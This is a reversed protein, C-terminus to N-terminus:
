LDGPGRNWGGALGCPGDDISEQFTSRIRPAGGTPVRVAIHCSRGRPTLRGRYRGGAGFIGCPGTLAQRWVGSPAVVFPQYRARRQSGNTTRGYPRRSRRMQIPDRFVRVGSPAAVFPQYRARRRSGNTTRGYAGGGAAPVAPNITDSVRAAPLKLLADTANRIIAEGSKSPTTFSGPISSSAESCFHYSASWM